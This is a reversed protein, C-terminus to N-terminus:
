VCVGKEEALGWHRKWYEYKFPWNDKQFQVVMKMMEFNEELETQQDPFIEKSKFAKVMNAGIDVASLLVQAQEENDILQPNTVFLSDTIWCGLMGLVFKLYEVGKETYPGGSTVIVAGYRGKVAQCHILNQSRDIFAKMQASVNSVFNPSALIIGDAEIMAQRIMSYDDDIVCKGTKACVECANCPKVMLESLFFSVTEAGKNEVGKLISNVVQHTAGKRGNPSGNIAIVKM